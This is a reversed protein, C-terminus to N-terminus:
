KLLILKKSTINTGAELRYIYVGSCLKEANFEKDYNGKELRTDVLTIIKQGLINLIDLKVNSREPITFSIKTTPNFPNPYNQSLDFKYENSFENVNTIFGKGSLNVQLSLDELYVTAVTKLSEASSPVFGFEIDATGGAPIITPSFSKVLFSPNNVSVSDLSLDRGIPNFVTIKKYTLENITTSDFNVIGASLYTYVPEQTKLNGSFIYGYEDFFLDSVFGGYPYEIKETRWIVGWDTSSSLTRFDPPLENRLLYYTELKDVSVFDGEQTAARLVDNTTNYFYTLGFNGTIAIYDFCKVPKWYFLQGLAGVAQAKKLWTLGGDTSKQLNGWAYQNIDIYAYGSVSVYLYNNIDSGLWQYRENYVLGPGPLNNWTNGNDTSQWLSNSNKAYIKNTSFIYTEKQTNIPNWTKGGDVTILHPKLTDGSTFVVIRNSPENTTDVVFSFNGNAYHYLTDWTKFYNTTRLLYSNASAYFTKNGTYLLQSIIQSGNITFPLFKIQPSLEPFFSGIIVLSFFLKKM